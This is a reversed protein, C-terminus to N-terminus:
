HLQHSSPKTDPDLPSRYTDGRLSYRQTFHPASSRNTPTSVMECKLSGPFPLIVIMSFANSPGGCITLSKPFPLEGEKRSIGQQYDFDLCRVRIRYAQIRLGLAVLLGYALSELRSRSRLAYLAFQVNVNEGEAKEDMNIETRLTAAICDWEIM